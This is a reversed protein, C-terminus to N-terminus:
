QLALFHCTNNLLVLSFCIYDYNKEEEKTL